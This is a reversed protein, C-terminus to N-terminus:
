VTAHKRAPLDERKTYLMEFAGIAMKRTDEPRIITDIYGRSAAADVSNQKKEYEAAKELIENGKESAYMIKAEFIKKSIEDELHAYVNDAMEQFGPNMNGAERLTKQNDAAKDSGYEIQKESIGM